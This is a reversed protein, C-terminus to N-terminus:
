KELAEAAWMVMQERNEPVFLNNQWFVFDCFDSIAYTVENDDESICVAIAADDEVEAGEKRALKVLEGRTKVTQGKLSKVDELPMWTGVETEIKM